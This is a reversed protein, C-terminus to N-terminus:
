PSDGLGLVEAMPAFHFDRLLRRLRDETRHLNWYHTISIRRPLDLRPHDPDLEWPHIYFAIARGSANIRRLASRTLNYPFLRFYAGGAVPINRGALRWTSPPFEMLGSRVEYPWRPADAIGYRYNQVPFVSSDYSLGAEHLVDFAWEAGKIISFFPARHGRVCSEGLADELVALSRQLDSRFGEAGLTYVFRHSYGHTGIEHGRARIERMLDPAREAAYGLVFFTARVDSEEFLALLRETGVRLRDAFGSWHELDIEIGQYWDELDVTFANKIPSADRNVFAV